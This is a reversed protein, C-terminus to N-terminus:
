EAARIERTSRCYEFADCYVDQLGYIDLDGILIDVAIGVEVEMLSDATM